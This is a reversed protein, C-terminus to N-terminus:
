APLSNETLRLCKWFQSRILVHLNPKLLRPAPGQPLKFYEQGTIPEGHTLFASFDAHFLLKNVKIAGFKPDAQCWEAILLIM